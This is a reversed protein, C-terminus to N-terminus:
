RVLSMEPQMTIVDGNSLKTTFTAVSGNHLATQRSGTNGERLADIVCAGAPLALIHGEENPSNSLFVFVHDRALDSRASTLAEIYPALRQKRAEMRDARIRSEENLIAPQDYSAPTADWEFGLRGHRQWHWEQLSRVYADSSYDMMEYRYEEASKFKYDWHSALGFEAVEHMEGSRTQIEMTWPEGEFETFATYHLSQYGNTKPTKIYDKFRPNDALPLWYQTCLQQIYYCLARERAATLADPEDPSMKKANLVIRLALADPVQLIHQSRNRLMKKWMSYPEKVRATIDFSETTMAFVGDARLVADMQRSVHELVRDMSEGITPAIQAPGRTHGTYPRIQKTLSALKQYQRRYLTRFAYEELENKLRHMGLRSALPAFIHLAERSARVAEPTLKALKAKELGKLRYLCAATRIALARWDKTESLLLNKLNYADRADLSVRNAKPNRIIQSFVMEMHKLRSADTAIDFAHTGFMKIGQLEPQEWVNGLSERERASVNACYHFAAAVLANLGMEMTEVMILCFEAAGAMKQADGFAAEEIALTLKIVENESFFSTMMSTRLNQITTELLHSRPVSLWTPLKTSPTFSLPNNTMVSGAPQQQSQQLTNLYSEAETRFFVTSSTIETRQRKPNAVFGQATGGFSLFILTVKM